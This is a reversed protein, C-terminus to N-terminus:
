DDYYTEGKNENEAIYEAEMETNKIARDHGSLAAFPAFQAARNKSSMKDPRRSGKYEYDIIDEYDMARLEGLRFCFLTGVDNLGRM